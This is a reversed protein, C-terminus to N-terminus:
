KIPSDSLGPQGTKFVLRCFWRWGHSKGTEGQRRRVAGRPADGAGGGQKGDIAVRQPAIGGVLRRSGLVVRGAFAQRLRAGSVQGEDGASCVREAVVDVVLAEGILAIR